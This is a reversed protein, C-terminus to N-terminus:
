PSAQWEGEEAMVCAHLLANKTTSTWL